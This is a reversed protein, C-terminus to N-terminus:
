IEEDEDNEGDIAEVDADDGDQDAGDSDTELMKDLAAVGGRRSPRKSAAVKQFSSADATLLPVPTPKDFILAASPNAGKIM